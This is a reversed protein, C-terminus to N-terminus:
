IGRGAKRTNQTGIGRFAADAVNSFVYAGAPNAIPRKVIVPSGYQIIGVTLPSALAAEIAAQEGAGFTYVNGLCRDETLGAFRKYGNRTAGSSRRLLFGLSTFSNIEQGTLVGSLLTDDSFIDLMNSLNMWDRHTHDVADAQVALIPPLIDDVFAANMSELYTGGAGTIVDFHFYYVNLVTQGLYSQYDICRILDGLVAAMVSVLKRYSSYLLVICIM